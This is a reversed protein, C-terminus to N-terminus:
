EVRSCQCTTDVSKSVSVRVGAGNHTYANKWGAYITGNDSIAMSVEVHHPYTSDDTSLLINESFGVVEPLIGSMENATLMVYRGTEVPMGSIAVLLLSVSISSLKYAFRM